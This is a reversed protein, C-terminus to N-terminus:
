PNENGAPPGVSVRGKAEVRAMFRRHSDPNLVAITEGVAGSGEALASLELHAAGNFVEVTVPDGRAVVQPNALMAAGIPTGARIIARPWKGVAEGASALVPGVPPFELRTEVRVANAPIARGPALDATAVVRTVPVLIKVRAWVPLRHTGAYRVFGMWLGGGSGPRLSNAPFETQGAPVPQRSYDLISIDASPLAKRMAALFLTPDPPSVPRTVCIDGDPQWDWAFRKAMRRLESTRFIRSVGPAPALAVPTQPASIALGPVAAALDGALVQDSDASVALCSALAFAALPMM